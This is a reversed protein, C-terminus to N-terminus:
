HCLGYGGAIIAQVPAAGITISATRQRLHTDIVSVTGQDEIPLYLKDGDPTVVGTGPVGDLAISGAAKRRELDFILLKRTAPAPVFAVTDFWAAYATSAAAPLTVGGPQLPESPLISLTGAHQDIALLQIGTGTAFLVPHDSAPVSALVQRSRLDLHLVRRPTEATLAFGERGNPARLLAHLTPGEVPPVPQGTAIDYASLGGVTAAAVLLASSDGSFIAERIERPGDIRSRERGGVTDLLAITGRADDFAALRQGDPSIRLRSPVFPLPVDSRSQAALDVSVLRPSRLDITALRGGRQSIQLERPELGLALTGTVTDSDVDIADLAAVGRRAVFITRRYDRYAETSRAPAASLLTAAGILATGVLRRRTIGARFRSGTPQMPDSPPKSIITM